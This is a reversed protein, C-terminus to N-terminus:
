WQLRTSRSMSMSGGTPARGEANTRVICIKDHDGDFPRTNGIVIVGGDSASFAGIASDWDNGGYARSWRENGMPDTRVVFMDKDAVIQTNAMVFPNEYNWARQVYTSGAVLVDGGPAEAVSYGDASEYGQFTSKWLANGDTDARLVYMDLLSYTFLEVDQLEMTKRHKTGALLFGGDSAQALASVAPRREESSDLVREWVISAEGDTKVLVTREHSEGAFAFGGDSTNIAATIDMPANDQLTFERRWVESGDGDTRVLLDGLIVICGGDPAALIADPGEGWDQEGDGLWDQEEDGFLYRYWLTNGSADIKGLTPYFGYVDSIGTNGALLFGGDAAEVVEVIVDREYLSPLHASWLEEGEADVKLLYVSRFVHWGTTEQKEGGLFLGGDVTEVIAHVLLGSQSEVTRSWPLEEQTDNSEVSIYNRRSLPVLLSSDTASTLTVTYAGPTTYTHTPNRELSFVGDGFKWAWFTITGDYASSSDM